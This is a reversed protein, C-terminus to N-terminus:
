GDNEKGGDMKAGCNPCYSDKTTVIRDKWFDDDACQDCMYRKAGFYVYPVDVWRGHPVLDEYTLPTEALETTGEIARKIGDVFGISYLDVYRRIFVNLWKILKDADIARM